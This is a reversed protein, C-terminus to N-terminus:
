NSLMAVLMSQVQELVHDRQAMELINQAAANLQGTRLYDGRYKRLMYCRNRYYNGNASSVSGPTVFVRVLAEPVFGIKNNKAIRIVLDWDELSRMDEDFGGTEDFVRRYMLMTPAGCTNQVLLDALIEGELHNKTDMNPVVHYYGPYVEMDYATYIMGYEPHEEMYGIQKEIKDPKWADDSDHFAIIDYNSMQVGYNRAGGAGKNVDLKVYRIQPANLQRVVEETHDTSHDDVIIIEKVPYTQDLVSKVSRMISNERNYTPIIVSIERM